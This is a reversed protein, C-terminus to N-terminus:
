LIKYGYGIDSCVGVKDYIIHAFSINEDDIFWDTREGYRWNDM